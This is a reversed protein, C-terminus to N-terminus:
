ITCSDRQLYASRKILFITDSKISRQKVGVEASPALGADASVPVHEVFLHARVRVHSRFLHCSVRTNIEWGGCWEGVRM